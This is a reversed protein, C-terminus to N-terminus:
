YKLRCSLYKFIRKSSANLWLKRSKIIDVSETVLRRVFPNDPYFLILDRNPMVQFHDIVNYSPYAQDKNLGKEVIYRVILLMCVFFVSLILEFLTTLWNRRALLANKWLLISLQRFFGAIQVPRKTNALSM